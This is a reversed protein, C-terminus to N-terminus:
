IGKLFRGPNLIGKPDLKNKLAQMAAFANGVSGWVEIKAKLGQPAAEIVLNGAKAQVTSRAKEILRASQETQEDELNAFLYVLGTGARVQLAAENLGLAATLQEAHQLVFPLDTLTSSWKLRLNGAPLDQLGQWLAASEQSGETEIIDSARTQHCLQKLAKLQDKVAVEVGEAAFFLVYPAEPLTLNTLKSMQVQAPRNLVELAAPSTNSRAAQRAASLADEAKDFLAAAWESYQPLPLVKFTVETLLALTGLSGIMLKHLDYGAVNKVVRGGSRGIKGDALGFECGILLDRSTGYLLRKPGSVNTSLIGGLTQGTLRPADLPLWQGHKGLISQLQALELGAGTTITLDEPQYAILTNLKSTSIQLEFPGVQNGMEQKTGGGGFGLSLNELDAKRLGEAAEEASTPTLLTTPKEISQTMEVM